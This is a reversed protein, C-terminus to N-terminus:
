WGGLFDQTNFNRPLPYDAVFRDVAQHLPDLAFLDIVQGHLLVIEYRLPPPDVGVALDALAPTSFSMEVEGGFRALRIRM